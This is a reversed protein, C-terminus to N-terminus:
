SAGALADPAVQFALLPICEQGLHDGGEVRRVRMRRGEKVVGMGEEFGNEVIWGSVSEWGVFVYPGTPVLFYPHVKDM